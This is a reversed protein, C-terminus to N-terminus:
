RRGGARAAAVRGARAHTGARLPLEARCPLPRPRRQRRDRRRDRRRERGRPLRARRGRRRATRARGAAGADGCGQPDRERRDVASGLACENGTPELVIALAVDRLEPRRDFLPVVASEGFPLEERGFFVLGVDLDSEVDGSALADAVALMVALGGKMDAAGRGHIWGSERRAPASAGPPVTDVHGALLILPAGPRREPMALLVSDEDDLVHFRDPLREDIAALIAGEDRSVSPIAVLDETATALREARDSVM